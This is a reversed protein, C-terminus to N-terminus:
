RQITGDNWVLSTTYVKQQEEGSLRTGEKYNQLLAAPVTLKCSYGTTDETRFSITLEYSDDMTLEANVKQSKTDSWSGEPTIEMTISKLAEKTDGNATLYQNKYVQEALAKLVEALEGEPEGQYSFVEVGGNSSYADISLAQGEIESELLAAASTVSYYSQQSATLGAMRGSAATGAALVVSGALACLLFFLLALLITAGSTDKIKNELTTEPM